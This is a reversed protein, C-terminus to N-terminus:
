NGMGFEFLFCLSKDLELWKYCAMMKKEGEGCNCGIEM